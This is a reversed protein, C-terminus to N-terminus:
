KQAKPLTIIFKTGKNVESVIQMKGHNSEIFDRSMRLGLGLSGELRKMLKGDKVHSMQELEDLIHDPIGPGNDEIILSLSDIGNDVVSYAIWSGSPCYKIANSVINRVVTKISNRDFFASTNKPIANKLVINKQAL